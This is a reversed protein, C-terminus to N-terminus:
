SAEAFTLKQEIYMKNYIVMGRLALAKKDRASCRTDKDDVVDM